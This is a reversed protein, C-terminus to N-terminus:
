QVRLALIVTTFAFNVAVTITIRDLNKEVVTSGAAAQGVSGGFMDSLGGGKGSHMLILFVLALVGPHRRGPNRDDARPAGRAEPGTSAVLPAGEVARPWWGRRGRVIAAFEAADLSAGGVLSRRRGASVPARRHQRAAGVGRVPHATAGAAEEGAVGAVVSRVHACAAQADEATATRGTGIAWIPEYAVVMGAVADPALGEFAATVQATLRAETAGAEREEETEGVCVLPTMGHRLVARLISAM